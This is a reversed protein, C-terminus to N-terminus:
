IINTITTLSCISNNKIYAHYVPTRTLEITNYFVVNFHTSNNKASFDKHFSQIVRITNYKTMHKQFKESTNYLDNLLFTILDKDKYTIYEYQYFVISYTQKTYKIVIDNNINQIENLILEDDSDSDSETSEETLENTSTLENTPEDNPELQSCEANDGTIYGLDNDNNLEIIENENINSIDVSKHSDKNKKTKKPRKRKKKITENNVTNGFLQELQNDTTDYVPKKFLYNYSSIPIKGINYKVFTNYIKTIENYNVFTSKFIPIAYPNEFLDNALQQSYEVPLLIFPICHLRGLNYEFQKVSNNKSAVFLEILSTIIYGNNVNEFIHLDDYKRVSKYTINNSKAVLYIFDNDCCRTLESVIEHARHLPEFVSKEIPTYGSDYLDRYLCGYTQCYTNKKYISTMENFTQLTICSSLISKRMLNINVEIMDYQIICRLKLLKNDNPSYTYQNQPNILIDDDDSSYIHIITYFTTPNEFLNLNFRHRASTDSYLQFFKSIEYETFIKEFINSLATKEIHRLFSFLHERDFTTYNIRNNDRSFILYSNFLHQLEIM